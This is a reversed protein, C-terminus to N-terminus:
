SCISHTSRISDPQPHPHPSSRRRVVMALRRGDAEHHTRRGSADRAAARILDLFHGEIWERTFNNPVTLVLADREESARVEGFWTRFTSENLAGRLRGAVESWLSDATPEFPEEVSRPRAGRDTPLPARSCVLPKKARCRSSFAPCSAYFVLSKCSTRPVDVHSEVPTSLTLQRTPSRAVDARQWAEREGRLKDRM